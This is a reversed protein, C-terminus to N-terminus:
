LRLRFIISFLSFDYYLLHYVGPCVPCCQGLPIYQNDCDVEPCLVGACNDDCLDQECSVRGAVCTCQTCDDPQFQQGDKYTIGEFVCDTVPATANEDYEGNDYDYDYTGFDYDAFLFPFM